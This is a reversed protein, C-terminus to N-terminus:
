SFLGMFNHQLLWDILSGSVVDLLGLTVGSIILMVCVVVTMATTDRRSPWVVRSIETVVEDAWHKVRKNFQLAFFLFLGALFPVGHRVLDHSVVRGFPGTAVAAMTEMLVNVVIGLLIAGSLFSVTIIKDNTKEM